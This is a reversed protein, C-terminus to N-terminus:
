SRTHVEAGLPEPDVYDATAGTYTRFTTIRGNQRVIWDPQVTVKGLGGPVDVCLKPVMLGSV